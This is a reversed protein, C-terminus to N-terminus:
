RPVPACGGRSSNPAGGRRVEDCAACGDSVPSDASPGVALAGNAAGAAPASGM